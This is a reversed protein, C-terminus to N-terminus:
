AAGKSDIGTSRMVADSNEWIIAPAVLAGFVSVGFGSTSFTASGFGTFSGVGLTTSFGSITGDASGGGGGGAGSGSFASGLGSLAFGSGM